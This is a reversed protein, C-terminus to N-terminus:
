LGGGFILGGFRYRLFGETLDGKTGRPGTSPFNGEFVFDFM